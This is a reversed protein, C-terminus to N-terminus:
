SGVPTDESEDLHFYASLRTAPEDAPEPADTTEAVAARLRALLSAGDAEPEDDNEDLDHDSPTDLPSESRPM